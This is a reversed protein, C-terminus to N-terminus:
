IEIKKIKQLVPDFIPGLMFNKVVPDIEHSEPQSRVVSHKIDETKMTKKPKRKICHSYQRTSFYTIKGM